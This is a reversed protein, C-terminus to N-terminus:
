QKAKESLKSQWDKAGSANGLKMVIIVSESKWEKMEFGKYEEYKYSQYKM